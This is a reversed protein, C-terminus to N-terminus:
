KYNYECDFCHYKKRILPVPTYVLISLILYFIDWKYDIAYGYKVNESKCNPCIIEKKSSDMIWYNELLDKEIYYESTRRKYSKISHTKYDFISDWFERRNFRKPTKRFYLFELEDSIIKNFEKDDILFPDILHKIKDLDNLITPNSRINKKIKFINEQRFYENELLDICSYEGDSDILKGRKINDIISKCYDVQDMPVKLKVGGIAVARFPHVWVINEDQIFCDIGDTAM